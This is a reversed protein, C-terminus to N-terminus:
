YFRFFVRESHQTVICASAASAAGVAELLGPTAAASAKDLAVFASARAASLDAV